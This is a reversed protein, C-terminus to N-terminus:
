KKLKVIKKTAEKQYGEVAERYMSHVVQRDTYDYCYRLQSELNSYAKSIGKTLRTVIKDLKYNLIEEATFFKASWKGSENKYVCCNGGHLMYGRHSDFNTGYFGRDSSNYDYEYNQGKVIKLMQKIMDTYRFNNGNAIMYEVLKQKNSKKM